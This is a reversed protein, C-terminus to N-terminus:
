VRPLADNIWSSCGSVNLHSDTQLQKMWKKQLKWRTEVTRCIQRSSWGSMMDRSAWLDGHSLQRLWYRDKYNNWRDQRFSGHQRLQRTYRNPVEGVWWIEAQESIVIAFHNPGQKTNVLNHTWIQVVVDRECSQPNLNSGLRMWLYKKGSIMLNDRSSCLEHGTNHVRCLGSERNLSVSYMRSFRFYM